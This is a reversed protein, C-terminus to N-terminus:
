SRQLLASQWFAALEAEFQEPQGNWVASHDGHAFISLRHPLGPPLAAYIERAMELPVLVDGAAITVWTPRRLQAALPLLAAETYRYGTRLEVVRTVQSALWAPLRLKRAIAKIMGPLSSPASELVIARLDAFQNLAPAANVVAMASMSSGFLLIPRGPDTRALAALLATVDDKERCGYATGRGDSDSSGHNSLEMIVLEFGLRRAMPIYRTGALYNASAGPLYVLLPADAAASGYRLVNLRQGRPNHVWCQRAPVAIAQRCSLELPRTQDPSDPRLDGFFYRQRLETCMDRRHSEWGRADMLYYLTRDSLYKLLWAYLLAALATAALVRHSRQPTPPPHRM